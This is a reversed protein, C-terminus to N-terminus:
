ELLIQKLEALAKRELRSVHMQSIDLRKASETQSLDEYFRLHIVTKGREDLGRLADTLSIRGILKEFEGDESALYDLLSSSEGTGNGDRDCKVELSLPKGRKEVEFTDYVEEESLGTAQAIEPITPSRGLRQSLVEIARDAIAKQRHLKRPIKVAWCHDRFYNKVEGVIGPIAFAVFNDGRSPDYKEIAKLLGISGVQILDELPEGSHRFRNCLRRVLALHGEVM